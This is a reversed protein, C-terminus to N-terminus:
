RTLNAGASLRPSIRRALEAQDVYRVPRTTLDFAVHPSFCPDSDELVKAWRESMVALTGSTSAGVSGRSASERHELRVTCDYILSADHHTVMRLCLDVDQFDVALAEDFGGVAHFTNTDVALCAATVASVERQSDFITGAIKDSTLGHGAHVAIPLRGDSIDNGSYRYREVVVGMHQVRGDPFELRAGVGGVHGADFWGVLQRLWQRDKTSVDNNLFVTVDSDDGYAAGRNCIRSFNFSGDDRIVSVRPDRALLEAMYRLTESELSGNDVIVLSLNPVDRARLVSEVADRLLEVRDRTPVVVKVSVAARGHWQVVSRGDSECVVEADCMRSRMVRSSAVTDCVPLDDGFREVLLNPLHCVTINSAAMRLTLDHLGRGFGGVRHFVVNRVVVASGVYNRLVALTPSWAPKFVPTPSDGSVVFEDSYVLDASDRGLRFWGIAEPTLAAGSELLMVHSGTLSGVVLDVVQTAELAVGEDWTRVSFRPDDVGVSRIVDFAADADASPVILIM